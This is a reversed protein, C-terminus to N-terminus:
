RAYLWGDVTEAIRAMDADVTLALRGEAGLRQYLGTGDEYLAKVEQASAPMGDLRVPHAILLPRPAALMALQPIDGVEQLDPSFVVMRQAHPVGQGIFSSLTEIAAAGAIRPQLAAALVAALGAERWGVIAVRKRDYALGPYKAGALQLLDLVWQGLLPRGIWLSWEVANHDPIQEGLGQGPMSLEGCSRLDAAVVLRGGSSLRQALPTALAAKRGGPHALIVLGPARTEASVPPLVAIPIRVGPEPLLTFGAAPPAPPQGFVGEEVKAPSAEPLALVERLRTRRREAEGKWRDNELAPRLSQSLQEGRAKVWGITTAIKGPRFKADFCRLAEPDDTQIPPEPIPSGDGKGNLWRHMWGYMAERMQQNYAHGSEFLVHRLREEASHARFYPKTRDLAKASAEPGFHYVDRTATIVMLARPAVIGLLDGEEAFTLGGLLVEDVCCATSMYSEFTGVSCVPVACKIREDFASLHTTQNGGGSAGTCGIREPDVDKRSQLYDLARVNDFLQLGNLPTGVPWLSAGLFGGHYENQGSQTGREGAGWADLTFALFGLKALGICRSQVVPDRRAGAWHGHVCLVTPFPGPRGAPVYATATAYCGPRTQFSIKEVRYADRELVGHTQADFATSRLGSDFSRKAANQIAARIAAARRSAEDATRPLTDKERLGRATRRYWRHLEEGPTIPDPM